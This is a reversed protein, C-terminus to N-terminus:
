NSPRFLFDGISRSAPGTGEATGEGARCGRSVRWSFSRMRKSGEGGVTDPLDFSIVDVEMKKKREETKKKNM